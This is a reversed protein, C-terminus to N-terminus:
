RNSSSVNNTNRPKETMREPIFSEEQLIHVAKGAEFKIRIAGWFDRLYLSGLYKLVTSNPNELGGHQQEKHM